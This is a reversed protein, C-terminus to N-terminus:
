CQVVLRVIGETAKSAKRAATYEWQKKPDRLTVQDSGDAMGGVRGKWGDVWGDAWGGVRVCGSVRCRGGRGEGVGRLPLGM